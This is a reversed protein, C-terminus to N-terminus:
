GLRSEIRLEINMGEFQIHPLVSVQCDYWGVEAPRAIVKVAIAKFPFKRLTLDDPNVNTTVFQTLWKSLLKELFGADASSGIYDRAITKLYHAVRTVSFTYALNTVLQANQADKDDKFRKARKLSQASFFAADSSAKRYIIPIFGNRAFELERYDPIAMEIPARNESEGRINFSDVPLGRLLGGGLPGRIYQCWGSQEFSRVLNRAFLWVSSGWLYKSRDGHATEEFPLGYSPNTETNWPLRLVYRPFTLGLYAAEDSDRLLNWRSYRPQSLLGDLDRLAELDEITQCGFFQPAVSGIFPAHSAAAVKSMSRLWFLDRPQQTFEYLGLLAGFPRGGYQDYESIYIKQFLGSGFIDSSNNEFDDFLEDKSVDMLDLCINAKFNVNEVLESLGTWMSEMHQLQEHHLIENLQKNVLDDIHRVADLIKGRDFRGEVPEINFLMAGVASLFRDESGVEETVQTFTADVMPIMKANAASLQVGALLRDIFPNVPVSALDTM